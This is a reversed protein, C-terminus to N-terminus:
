SVITLCTGLLPVYVVFFVCHCNSFGTGSLIDDLLQAEIHDLEAEEEDTFLGNSNKASTAQRSYRKVGMEFTANCQAVKLNILHGSVKDMFKDFIDGSKHLACFLPTFDV